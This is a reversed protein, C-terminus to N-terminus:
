GLIMNYSEDWNCQVSCYSNNTQSMVLHIIFGEIQM